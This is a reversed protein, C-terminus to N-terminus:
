RPPTKSLNSANQNCRSSPGDKTDGFCAYTRMTNETGMLKCNVCHFHGSAYKVRSGDPNVEIDYYVINVRHGHMSAPLLQYRVWGGNEAGMTLLYFADFMKPRSKLYAWERLQSWTMRM